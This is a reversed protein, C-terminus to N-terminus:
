CFGFLDLIMWFKLSTYSKPGEARVDFRVSRVKKWGPGLLLMALRMLLGPDFSLRRVRILGEALFHFSLERFWLM